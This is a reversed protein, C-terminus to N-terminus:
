EKQKTLGLKSAEIVAGTRNTVNLAKLIATVHLKVTGESLDLEGAIVKNSKGEAILELVNLQRPTLLSANNKDEKENEQKSNKKEM